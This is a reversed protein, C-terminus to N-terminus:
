EDGADADGDAILRTVEDEMEQIRRSMVQLIRYALSPDEHIRRVLTKRDVSLVRADGLARATARVKGGKGKREFFPVDGFFDGGSLIVLRVDREETERVVEVEGEQVVFMRSGDDGQQIIVQEDTYTKGLANKRM